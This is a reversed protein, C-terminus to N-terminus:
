YRVVLYLWVQALLWSQVQWGIAVQRCRVASDLRWYQYYNKLVLRQIVGMFLPWKKSYWFHSNYVPKVTTIFSFSSPDFKMLDFNGNKMLDFNGNKMLDFYRDHTQFKNKWSILHKLIIECNQDPPWCNSIISKSNQDWSQNTLWLFLWSILIQQYHKKSNWDWSFNTLRLLCFGWSIL